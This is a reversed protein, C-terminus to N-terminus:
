AYADGPQRAGGDEALIGRVKPVGFCGAEGALLAAVAIIGAGQRVVTAPNPRPAILPLPDADVNPGRSVSGVEEPFVTLQGPLRGDGGAHSPWMIEIAAEEALLATAAGM